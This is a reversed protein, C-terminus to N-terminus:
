TSRGKSVAREYEDAARRLLVPVLTGSSASACMLRLAEVALVAATFSTWNLHGIEWVMDDDEADFREAYSQAEADLDLEAEPV